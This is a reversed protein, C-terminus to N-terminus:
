CLLPLSHYITHVVHVVCVLLLMFVPTVSQLHLVYKM